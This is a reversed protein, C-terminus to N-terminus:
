IALKNMTDVLNEIDWVFMDTYENTKLLSNRYEGGDEQCFSDYYENNLILEYRDEITM